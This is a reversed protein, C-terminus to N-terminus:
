KQLAAKISRALDPMVPKNAPIDLRMFDRSHDEPPELFVDFPWVVDHGSTSAVGAIKGGFVAVHYEGPDLDLKIIKKGEVYLRNVREWKGGINKVIHVETDPDRRATPGFRIHCREDKSQSVRVKM